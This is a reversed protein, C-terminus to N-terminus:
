KKLAQKTNYEESTESYYSGCDSCVQNNLEENEEKLEKIQKRYLGVRVFGVDSNLEDELEKIQEAQQEIACDPYRCAENKPCSEGEIKVYKCVDQPRKSEM